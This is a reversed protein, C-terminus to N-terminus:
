KRLHIIPLLRHLIAERLRDEKHHAASYVDSVLNLAEKENAQMHDANVIDSAYYMAGFKVGAKLAASCLHSGEADMTVAGNAKVEEVLQLTELFISAVSVHDGSLSIDEQPNDSFLHSSMPIDKIEGSHKVITFSRPLYIHNMSESGAMEGVKAVHVLGYLKGEKLINYALAGSLGGWYCFEINILFVPRYGEKKLLCYSFGEKTDIFEFDEEEAYPSKFGAASLFQATLKTYGLVLIAEGSLWEPHKKLQEALGSNNVSLQAFHEVSGRHIGATVQPHYQKLLMGWHHVLEESPMAALLLFPKGQEDKAKYLSPRKTNGMKPLLYAERYSEQIRRSGDWVPNLEIQWKQTRAYSLVDGPAVGVVRVPFNQLVNPSPGKSLAYTVIDEDMSHSTPPIKHLPLEKIDLPITKVVPQRYLINKGLRAVEKFIVSLIPLFHRPADSALCIAQFPINKAGKAFYAIETGTTNCGQQMAKEIFTQKLLTTANSIHVAKSTYRPLLPETPILPSPLVGSPSVISYGGPIVCGQYSHSIHQAVKTVFLVGGLDCANKLQHILEYGISGRFSFRVTMSALPPCLKKQLTDLHILPGCEVSGKNIISKAMSVYGVILIVKRNSLKKLANLKSVVGSESIVESVFKSTSGSHFSAIIKHTVHNARFLQDLMSAWHHVAELSPETCFVYFSNGKADQMQWLSPRQFCNTLSNESRRQKEKSGNWLPDTSGNLFAWNQTKAYDPFHEPFVGLVNVTPYAPSFLDISPCRRAVNAIFADGEPPISSFPVAKVPGNYITSLNLNFETYYV